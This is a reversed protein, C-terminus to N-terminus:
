HRIYSLPHFVHALAYSTGHGILAPVRAITEGLHVFQRESVQPMRNSTAIVAFERGEAIEIWRTMQSM